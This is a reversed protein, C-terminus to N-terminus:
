SSRLMEVVKVVMDHLHFHMSYRLKQEGKVLQSLQLFPLAFNKAWIKKFGMGKGLHFNKCLNLISRFLFPTM